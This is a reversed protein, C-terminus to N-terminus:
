VWGVSWWQFAKIIIERDDDESFLYFLVREHVDFFNCLNYDSHFQSDTYFWVMGRRSTLLDLNVYWSCWVMYSQLTKKSSSLIIRKLVLLLLRSQNGVRPMLPSLKRRRCWVSLTGIFQDYWCPKIAPPVALYNIHTRSTNQLVSRVCWWWWWLLLLLQGRVKGCFVINFMRERGLYPSSLLDANASELPRRLKIHM